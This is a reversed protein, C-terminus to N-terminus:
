NKSAIIIILIDEFHVEPALAEIEIRDEQKQREDLASLHSFIPEEFLM